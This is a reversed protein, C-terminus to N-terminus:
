MSLVILLTKHFDKKNIKQYLILALPTSLTLPKHSFNKGLVGGRALSNSSVLSPTNYDYFTLKPSKQKGTNTTQTSFVHYSSFCNASRRSAHPFLLQLTKIFTHDVCKPSVMLLDRNHKSLFQPLLGFSQWKPTLCNTSTVSIVVAIDLTTYRLDM